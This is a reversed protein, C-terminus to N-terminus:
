WNKLYKCNTSSVNIYAGGDFGGTNSIVYDTAVAPSWTGNFWGNVGDDFSGNTILNEGIVRYAKYDGSASQIVDGVSQANALSWFGSLACLSVLLRLKKRM